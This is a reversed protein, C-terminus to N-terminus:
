EEKKEEELRAKVEWLKALRPDIGELAAAEPSPAAEESTAQPVEVETAAAMEEELAEGEVLREPPQREVGAAPLIGFEELRQRVEEYSKPGFNRLSLIEDETLELLEGVTSIGTRRLANYTRISLGLEGIPMNRQEETLLLGAGIGRSIVPVPPKGVQAVATMHDRLIEAAKRIAEVAEISGDTWVELVLSDYQTGQPSRRPQVQYGVKRVPSFVADIAMFGIPLNDGQGAPRFGRGIEVKMEAYIRAESSDITLLHQQPNVIQLHEPTLLDAATVEGERGQVDLIITGPRLALPRIRVQKLNLLFEIADEKVHPITSFEHLLGEVRVRTIAAGPLSSLLVRRLSNGLTIGFGVMLPSITVKAYSGKDEEIEVRPLEILEQQTM